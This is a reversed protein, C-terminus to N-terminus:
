SILSTNLSWRHPVLKNNNRSKTLAIIQDYDCINSYAFNQDCKLSKLESVILIKLLSQKMFKLM